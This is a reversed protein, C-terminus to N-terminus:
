RRRSATSWTANSGIGGKPFVENLGTALAQADAAPAQLAGTAPAANAIGDIAVGQSAILILQYFRRYADLETIPTVWSQGKCAPDSIGSPGGVDALYRNWGAVYGRVGARVDERPGFPAPRQMLQEVVRDNIIRQWFFDSDLNKVTTGNGRQVYTKDPGFTKSRAARVTVYQDAMTCINDKAFSYGYGYGIDGFTKGTIHPIGYETRKITVEYAQAPAAVLLLTVASLGFRAGTRLFWAV